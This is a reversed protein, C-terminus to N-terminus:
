VGGYRLQAGMARPACGRWIAAFHCRTQPVGLYYTGQTEMAVGVTVATVVGLRPQSSLFTVASIGVEM